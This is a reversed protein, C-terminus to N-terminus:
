FWYWSFCKRGGKKFYDDEELDGGSWTREWRSGNEWCETALGHRAGKVWTEQKVSRVNRSSRRSWKHGWTTWSGDKRGDVYSGQEAQREQGSTNASYTWEGHKKGYVYSGEDKDGNRYMLTWQGHKQWRSYQSREEWSLYSYNEPIEPKGYPGKGVLGNRYRVTWQGVREGNEYEGELVARGPNVGVEYSDEYEVETWRGHKVEEVYTGKEDVEGDGGFDFSWQGHRMGNEFWGHETVNGDADREIWQGHKKGEAFHAERRIKGDGDRTVWKGHRKDTIYPGEDVWNLITRETWRGHKEGNVWPGESRIDGDKNRYTWQGHKKGKEYPGEWSNGDVDRGTLTGHIKGDVYPREETSGNMWRAIWPGHRRGEVYPGEIWDGTLDGDKDAWRIVWRGHRKGKVFPGQHVFGNVQRYIWDGHMKGGVVRGEMEEAEATRGVFEGDVFFGERETGDANLWVWKGVRKGDRFQGASQVPDEDSGLIWTLTGLGQAFGSYCEGTWTATQDTRFKPNWIYCGVENALEIWCESGHPLGACKPESRPQSLAGDRALLDSQWVWKLTGAGQALGGACTGTWTVTKSLHLHPNWIYCKPQNTLEMWCESGKRKGECTRAASFTEARVANLLELADKYHEGDRGAITLYHTVSEASENYLGLRESVEAYRFYFAEPIALGHEQRLDLIQDLAAKAATFDQKRIKEEAEMVYLDAQIHPPLQTARVQNSPVVFLGIGLFAIILSLASSMVQRSPHKHRTRGERAKRMGQVREARCPPAPRASDGEGQSRTSPGMFGQVTLHRPYENFTELNREASGNEVIRVM